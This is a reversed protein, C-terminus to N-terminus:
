LLELIQWLSAATKNLATSDRRGKHASNLVAGLTHMLMELQECGRGGCYFFGECGMIHLDYTCVCTSNHSQNQKQEM